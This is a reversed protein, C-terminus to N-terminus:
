ILSTGHDLFFLSSHLDIYNALFIPSRRMLDESRRVYQLIADLLSIEKSLLLGYDAKDPQQECDTNGLQANLNEKSAIVAICFAPQM